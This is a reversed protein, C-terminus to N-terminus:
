IPSKLLHCTDLLHWEADRETKSVSVLITALPSGTIFLRSFSSTNKDPIVFLAAEQIPMFGTCSQMNKM